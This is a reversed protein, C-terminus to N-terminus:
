QALEIGCFQDHHPPCNPTKMAVPIKRGVMEPMM